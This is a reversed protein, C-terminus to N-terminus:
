VGAPRGHVAMTQNYFRPDGTVEVGLWAPLDPTDTESQMEVEAIVLGALAGAFVDVEFTFAGSPIRYRTKEILTGIRMELMEQADAVPVAYEFEDRTMLGSGIKLTLRASQGSAIRIRLNRGDAFMLYAQQLPMGAGAYKQWGNSSVLFKREIEKAM